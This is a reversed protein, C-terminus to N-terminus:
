PDKRLKFADALSRVKDMPQSYILTIVTVRRESYMTALQDVKQEVDANCPKYRYKPMSAPEAELLGLKQLEALQLSVAEASTYLARGVQEATWSNNRKERLMLLAELQAVSSVNCAIFQKLDAPFDNM